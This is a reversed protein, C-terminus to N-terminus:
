RSAAVLTDDGRAIMATLTPQGIQRVVRALAQDACARDARRVAEGYVDASTCVDDAADRLRVYLRRVSAKDAFDVGHLSVKAQAPVRAPELALAATSSALLVGVAAFIRIM